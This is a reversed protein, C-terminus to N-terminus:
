GMCNKLNEVEDIIKQLQASDKKNAIDCVDMQRWGEILQVVNTLISDIEMTQPLTRHTKAWEEYESM